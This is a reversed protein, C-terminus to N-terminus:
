VNRIKYCGTFDFLRGSKDTINMLINNNELVIIKYFLLKKMLVKM